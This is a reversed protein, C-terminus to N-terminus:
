IKEGKEGAIYASRLAHRTAEEQLPDQVTKVAADCIADFKKLLEKDTVDASVSTTRSGYPQIATVKIAPKGGADRRATILFTAKESM